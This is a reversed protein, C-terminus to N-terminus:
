FCTKLKFSVWTWQVQKTNEKQYLHSKKIIKGIKILRFDKTSSREIILKLAKINAKINTPWSDITKAKTERIM